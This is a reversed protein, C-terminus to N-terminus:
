SKLDPYHKYPCDLCACSKTQSSTPASALHACMHNCSHPSEYLQLKQSHVQWSTTLCPLLNTCILMHTMCHDKREQGSGDDRSALPWVCPRERIKLMQRYIGFIHTWLSPELGVLSVLEKDNTDCLQHKKM